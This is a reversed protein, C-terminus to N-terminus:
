LILVELESLSSISADVSGANEPIRPNPGKLWITKMGIGRSPIMDREYSDGVFAVQEPPLELKRLAMRFIEPDPKSVGVETSDLIVDLFESVGAERCLVALNGYFNSVLGLRYRHRLRNILLANRRLFQESRDCFIDAMEKGKGHEELNLAEFQLRIHHNMLPRLGSLVVGSDGCCLADAHYFARKIESPSLDLRVHKYLAYFRDLTHEGDSDLTGGFDFLIARCEQFKATDM